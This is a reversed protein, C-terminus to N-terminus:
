LMRESKKQGRWGKGREMFLELKRGNFSIGDRADETEGCTHCTLTGQRDFRTFSVYITSGGCHLCKLGKM